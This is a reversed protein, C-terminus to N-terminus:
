KKAWYNNNAKKLPVGKESIKELVKEALQPNFVVRIFSYLAKVAKVWSEQVRIKRNGQESDIRLCIANHDSMEPQVYIVEISQKVCPAIKDNIIFYDIIADKQNGQGKRTQKDPIVIKM